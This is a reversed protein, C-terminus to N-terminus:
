SERVEIGYEALMWKKRLKYAQTRRGKRDEVIRRGAEVYVFDARYITLKEGGKAHLDFRVQRRLDSIKGANLLATLELWRRYESQSDFMKTKPGSHEAGVIEGAPTTYVPKANYKPRRGPLRTTM